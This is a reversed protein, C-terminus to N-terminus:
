QLEYGENFLIEFLLPLLPLLLLLLLVLALVLLCASGLFRGYLPDPDFGAFRVPYSLEFAALLRLMKNPQSSPAQFGVVLSFDLGM